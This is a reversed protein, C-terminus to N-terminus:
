RDDSEGAYNTVSRTFHLRVRKIIFQLSVSNRGLVVGGMPFAYPTFASAVTPTHECPSYEQLTELCTMGKPLLTIRM